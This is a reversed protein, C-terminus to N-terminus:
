AIKRPSFFLLVGVRSVYRVTSRGPPFFVPPSPWRNLHFPPAPPSKRASFALSSVPRFVFHAQPPWPALSFLPHSSFPSLFAETLWFFPLKKWRFCRPSLFRFLPSSGVPDSPLGNVLPLDAPFFFPEYKRDPNSWPLFRVGGLTLSSVARPWSSDFSFLKLARLVEIQTFPSVAGIEDCSSTFSIRLVIFGYLGQDMLRSRPRSVSPAVDQLPLILLPSAFLPGPKNKPTL